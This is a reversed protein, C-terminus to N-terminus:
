TRTIALQWSTESAFKRRRRSVSGHFSKLHLLKRETREFKLIKVEETEVEGLM